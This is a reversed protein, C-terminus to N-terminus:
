GGNLLRAIKLAISEPDATTANTLVVVDLGNAPFTANMARGGLTGGNHWIITRGEDKGIVWGFAYGDAIQSQTNGKPMGMDIGKPPTTAITVSQPSTVKGAFFAGDWKVLDSADSALAGASNAWTVDYRPILQYAGKVYDYGRAVDDGAPISSAPYQISDLGQPKLINESLYDPYSEGSIKAVLMGLVMYNTNSYKWKTGPKFHLPLSRTLNVYYSAPHPSTWKYSFLATVLDKNELYDPLGSTQDLLERVTIESGHPVSPLYKGIPSDLNVKGHQVLQMVAAATFQKTISGILFVTNATVPLNKAKDRQGYGKAFLVTGNRGVAVETGVLHQKAMAANVMADIKAVQAPSLADAMAAVPLSLTLVLASLAASARSLINNV